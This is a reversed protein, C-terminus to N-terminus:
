TTSPSSKSLIISPYPPLFYACVSHIGAVCLEPQEGQLLQQIKYEIKDWEQCIRKAHPLLKEGSVTLKAQAQRHFLATNLHSELGQVQRSITSQTVGCLKAAQGFSGTESVAVFARIQEIRM